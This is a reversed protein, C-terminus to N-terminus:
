RRSPPTPPAGVLGMKSLPAATIHRMALLVGFLLLGTAALVILASVVSSSAAWKANYELGPILQWIVYSGYGVGIIGATIMITGVIQISTSSVRTGPDDMASRRTVALTLCAFAGVLLYSMLVDSPRHWGGVVVSLGGVLAYLWVIVAVVARWVRPVVLLLSVAVIMAVAAHGSPATNGQDALSSMDLTTRPLVHKLVEVVSFALADCVVLTGLLWWRRRVIVVAMAVVALLVDAFALYSVSFSGVSVSRALFAAAAGIPGPFYEACNAYVMNDYQQGIVTNVSLAWVGAAALALLVAFVLCLVVSSKRPSTLLPDREAASEVGSKADDASRVAALAALDASPQVASGGPQPTDLPELYLKSRNNENM